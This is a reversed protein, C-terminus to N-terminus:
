IEFSLILEDKSKKHEFENKTKIYKYDKKYTEIKKAIDEIADAIFNVEEDTNTPHFSIRIWGPKETLNGSNIKKTIRNSLKKNVNLLYHGYTGACSCGGRSQIGYRDNLLKVVLNYHTNDLYFSFVPLRDKQKNALIKVKNIKNFKEFALKTIEKERIKIKEISMKEKLKISMAIRFAQIFGPTGGDERLEINDIYKYEGWPNTWEVTGGGPKDPVESNYIKKDFILVGSTGPGGLFKHPSFMIGDLSQLPNEPHMNIETYPAAAAFDVFCIGSYEHMLEAMKHYPTHIGTVNSAATFAGIKFERDKYKELCDRLNNLDILLDEGPPVVVLDAITEFWSTHNSHHEMHTIFVVPKSTGKFKSQCQKHKLGLIRQLKSIVSTMGFGDTILIDDSSANVHKKIIDKAANYSNTMLAGTTSAESHTNAIYPGFKNIIAEEIPRYLKGSAIWDAYTQKKEGFPTKIKSDFGVINQRIEKFYEQLNAM